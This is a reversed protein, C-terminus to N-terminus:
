ACIAEIVNWRGAPLVRTVQFRCQRLLERYEADTRECEGPGRPLNLDSLAVSIYEANAEPSEPMRREVLLLVSAPLARRCSELIKLSRADSWDHIISKLILTDTGPPVSNFFHGAVFEGRDTVGAEAMRQKAGDPATRCTSFLAAFPPIPKLFKASPITL